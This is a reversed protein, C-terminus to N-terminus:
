TSTTGPFYLGHADTDPVSSTPVPKVWLCLLDDSKVGFKDLYFLVDTKTDIVDRHTYLIPIYYDISDEENHLRRNQMYFALSIASLISGFNGHLNGM